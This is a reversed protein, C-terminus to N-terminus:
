YLLDSLHWAIPKCSMVRVWAILRYIPIDVKLPIFAIRRALWNWATANKEEFQLASVSERRTTNGVAFSFNNCQCGYDSWQLFARTIFSFSMISIAGFEIPRPLRYTTIVIKASAHIIM